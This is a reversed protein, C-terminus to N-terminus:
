ALRELLNSPIFYCLQPKDNYDSRNGRQYNEQTFTEFLEKSYQIGYIGDLYSYCFWYTKDPNNEATQVKNAGIISTPYQDHKIRRTKLEVFLTAGNDYDFCSFGGRRELRTNFYGELKQQQTLESSTGFAYDSAFTAASM